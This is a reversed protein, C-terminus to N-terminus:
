DVHLSLFPHPKASNEIEPKNRSLALFASSDLKASRPFLAISEALGMSTQPHFLLGTVRFIRNLGTELFRPEDCDPFQFNSASVLPGFGANSALPPFIKSNEFAFSNRFFALFV